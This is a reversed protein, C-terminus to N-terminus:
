LGAVIANLLQLSKGLVRVNVESVVCDDMCVNFCGHLCWM